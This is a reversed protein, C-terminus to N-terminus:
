LMWYPTQRIPQRVKVWHLFTKIEKRCNQWINVAQLEKAMLGALTLLNTSLHDDCFCSNQLHMAAGGQSHLFIVFMTTSLDCLVISCTQSVIVISNKSSLWTLLPWLVSCLSIITEQVDIRKQNTKRVFCKILNHEGSILVFHVLIMSRIRIYFSIISGWIGYDAPPYGEWKEGRLVKLM